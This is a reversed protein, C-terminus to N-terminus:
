PPHAARALDQRGTRPGLNRRHLLRRLPLPGRPRRDRRRPLRRRRHRRLPRRRARLHRRAARPGHPRVGRFGLCGAGEMIPWGLNDGAQVRDVEEERSVQVDGLWIEGSREDITMRWPNRLGYAFIEPRAGVVELFPNDEPIAYPATASAGRVDIRIVSGLITGLNQGNKFPDMSASGDGLSLYLMGDDPGFRIAGGNQNFGPQEIELVVLESAPDAVDDIVTFRSLLTRPPAPEVFYFVWLHGNDPFEPDLAVSLIGEGFHSDARPTIDLLVDGEPADDSVLLVRGAQEAVFLRDGPYPGIEVPAEYRHGDLAPVLGLAPLDEDAGCAALLAAALALSLALMPAPTYRRIKPELDSRRLGTVVARSRM